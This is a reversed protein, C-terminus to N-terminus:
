RIQKIPNKTEEISDKGQTKPSKRAQKLRGVIRLTLFLLFVTSLTAVVMGYILTLNFTINEMHQAYFFEEKESEMRHMGFMDAGELENVHFHSLDHKKDIDTNCELEIESSSRRISDM